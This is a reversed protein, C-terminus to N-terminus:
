KEKFKYNFLADECNKFFYMNNLRTYLLLLSTGEDMINM